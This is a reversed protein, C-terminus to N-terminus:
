DLDNVYDAILDM